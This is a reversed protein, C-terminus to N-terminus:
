PSEIESGHRNTGEALYLPLFLFAVSYQVALATSWNLWFCNGPQYFIFCTDLHMAVSRYRLLVRRLWGVKKKKLTNIISSKGVNPYGVVGVSIQKKDPHLKAFQLCLCFFPAFRVSHVFTLVHAHCSSKAGGIVVSM